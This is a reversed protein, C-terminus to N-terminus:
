LDNMCKDFDLGVTNGKPWNVGSVNSKTLPFIIGVFLSLVFESSVIIPIEAFLGVRFIFNNRLFDIRRKLYDTM